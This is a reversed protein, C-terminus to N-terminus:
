HLFFKCQCATIFDTEEKIGEEKPRGGMGPPTPMGYMPPISFHAQKEMGPRADNGKHRNDVAPPVPFSPPLGAYPLFARNPLMLNPPLLRPVTAAVPQDNLHQQAASTAVEVQNMFKPKTLNLPADPDTPPPPPPPPPPPTSHQPSRRENQQQQHIHALHAASAAASIWNSVQHPPLMQKYWQM